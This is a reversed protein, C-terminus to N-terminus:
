KNTTLNFKSVSYGTEVITEKLKLTDIQDSFYEVIANGNTFSAKVSKIGKLKTINSQIKQECGTCTMGNISIEVVSPAIGSDGMARKEGSRGCSFILLLSIFFVICKIYYKNVM